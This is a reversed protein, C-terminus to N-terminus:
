RSIVEISEVRIGSVGSDQLEAATASAGSQIDDLMASPDSFTIWVTDYEGEPGVNINKISGVFSQMHFLTDERVKHTMGEEVSKNFQVMVQLDCDGGRQAVPGIPRKSALPRRM